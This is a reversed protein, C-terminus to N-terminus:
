HGLKLLMHYIQTVLIYAHTHACVRYHMGARADAHTHTDTLTHRESQTKSHTRKTEESLKRFAEAEVFPM